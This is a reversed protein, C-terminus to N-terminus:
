HSPQWAFWLFVGIASIGAGFLAQRLQDSIVIGRKDLYYEVIMWGDMPPLPLLNWLGFAFSAKSGIHTAWGPSVLDVLFLFAGFLLSAIPGCVAIFARDKKSATEFQKSITLGVLPFLGFQHLLGGIKVKFIPVNGINMQDVTIKCRKFAALHGYEHVVILYSFFTWFLFCGVFLHWLAMM